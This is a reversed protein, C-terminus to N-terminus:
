IKFRNIEYQEVLFGRPEYASPQIGTKSRNCAKQQAYTRPGFNM